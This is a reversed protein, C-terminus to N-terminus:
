CFEKLCCPLPSWSFAVNPAIFRVCVSAKRAMTDAEQKSDAAREYARGVEAVFDNVTGCLFRLPLSASPLEKEVWGYLSQKIGVAWGGGLCMFYGSAVGM